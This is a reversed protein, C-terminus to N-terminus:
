ELLLKQRAPAAPGVKSERSTTGRAVVPDVKLLFKQYQLHVRMCQKTILLMYM